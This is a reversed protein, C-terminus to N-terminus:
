SKDKGYKMIKLSKVKRYYDEVLKPDTEDEFELVGVKKEYFKKDTPNYLHDYRFARVEEELRSMEMQEETPEPGWQSQIGKWAKYPKVKGSEKEKYMQYFIIALIIVIVIM